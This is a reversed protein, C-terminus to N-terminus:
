NNMVSRWHRCRPCAQRVVDLKLDGAGVLLVGAEVHDGVAAVLASMTLESRCHSYGYEKARDILAQAKDTFM